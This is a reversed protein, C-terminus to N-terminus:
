RQDCQLRLEGAKFADRRALLESLKRGDAPGIM